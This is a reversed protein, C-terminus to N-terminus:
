DFRKVIVVDRADSTPPNTSGYVYGNLTRGRYLYTKISNDITSTPHLSSTYLLMYNSDTKYYSASTYYTGFSQSFLGMTSYDWPKTLMYNGVGHKMAMRTGTVFIDGQAFRVSTTKTWTLYGGLQTKPPGVYVVIPYENFGLDTPDSSQTEGHNTTTLFSNIVVFYGQSSTLNTSIGNNKKVSMGGETVTSNQTGLLVTTNINTGHMLYPLDISTTLPTYREFTITRGVHSVDLALKTIITFNDNDALFCSVVSGTHNPDSSLGQLMNRTGSAFGHPSNSSPFIISGSKWPFTTFSDQGNNNSTGNWPVTSSHWAIITGYGSAGDDINYFWLSGSPNANSPNTIGDSTVSLLVDYPDEALTNRWVGWRNDGSPHSGTPSDFGTGNVGYYSAIRTYAPHTDFFSSHLHFWYGASENNNAGYYSGTYIRITGAM